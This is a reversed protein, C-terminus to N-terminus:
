MTNLRVQQWWADWYTLPVSPNRMLLFNHPCDPTDILCQAVCSDYLKPQTEPDVNQRIEKRYNHWGHPNNEFSGGRSWYKMMGDFTYFNERLTPTINGPLRGYNHSLCFILIALSFTKKM